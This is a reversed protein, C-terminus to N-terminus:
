RYQNSRWLRVVRFAAYPQDVYIGMKQIMKKGGGRRLQMEMDDNGFRGKTM